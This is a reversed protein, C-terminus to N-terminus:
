VFWRIVRYIICTKEVVDVVGDWFSGGGAAVGSVQFTVLFLVLFLFYVVLTTSLAKSKM